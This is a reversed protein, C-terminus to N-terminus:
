PTKAHARRTGVGIGTEGLQDSRGVVAEQAAGRVGGFHDRAREFEAHRADADGVAVADRPYHPGPGEQFLQLDLLRLRHRSEPQDDAGPEREGVLSGVNDSIRHAAM